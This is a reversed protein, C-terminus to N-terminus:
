GRSPCPVLRIMRYSGKNIGNGSNPEGSFIYGEIRSEDVKINGNLFGSGSILPLSIYEISTSYRKTQTPRTTNPLGTITINGDSDETIEIPKSLTPQAFRRQDLSAYPEIDVPKYETYQWRGTLPCYPVTHRKLTYSWNTDSWLGLDLRDCDSSITASVKGGKIRDVTTFEIRNGSILGDESSGRNMLHIRNGNQTIELINSAIENIKGDIYEIWRGTLSCSSNGVITIVAPSGQGLATRMEGLQESFGDAVRQPIDPSSWNNPNLFDQMEPSNLIPNPDFPTVTDQPYNYREGAKVPRGEPNKASKVQVDGVLVDITIGAASDATQIISEGPTPVVTVEDEAQALLRRSVQLNNNPLWGRKSSSQVKIGEPECGRNSGKKWAITFRGRASCPFSWESPTPSPGAKVLLGSSDLPADEFFGLHAWPRNGGPVYLITNQRLKQGISAPPRNHSNGDGIVLGTGEIKGIYAGDPTIAYSRVGTILISVLTLLSVLVLIFRKTSQQWKFKYM